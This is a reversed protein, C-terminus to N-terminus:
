LFNNAIKVNERIMSKYILYQALIYTVMIIIQFIHGQSYFKNIALVSDSIMFFIAGALMFLSFTSKNKLFFILSVVGFMGITVGYIIVPVLMESLYDKLFLLLSLLVILFPIISTITMKLSINKLKGLVIKIFLFHAILFSVLGTIFFMQGKNM